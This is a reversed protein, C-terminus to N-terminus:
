TPGETCTVIARITPCPWTFCCGDCFGADEGDDVRHHIGEVVAITARLRENDARLPSYGFGCKNCFQSGDEFVAAAYNCGDHLGNPHPLIFKDAVM